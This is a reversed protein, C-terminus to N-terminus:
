VKPWVENALKEMDRMMDDATEAIMAVPLFSAILYRVGLEQYKRIGEAIQGATGAFVPRGDQVSGNGDMLQYGHMRCTVEVSGPPRGARAIYRELRQIAVSLQEPTAVPFKTNAGIPQWGDGHLAARQM